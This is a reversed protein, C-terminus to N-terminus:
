MPDLGLDPKPASHKPVEVAQTMRRIAFQSVASTEALQQNLRFTQERGDRCLLVKHGTKAQLRPLIISEPQKMARLAPLIIARLFDSHQGTKNLIRIACAMASPSLLEIGLQVRGTSQQQRLWRLLGITWHTSGPTQLSVVEGMVLSTPVRDAWLLRYGRPSMDMAQARYEMVQSAPGTQEQDTINDAPAPIDPLRNGGADFSEQWVDRQSRTQRTDQAQFLAELGTKAQDDRYPRLFAEFTLGNCLQSHVSSLGPVLKIPQEVPQRRFQRQRTRDWSTALHQRLYNSIGSVAPLASAEAQSLRQTLEQTHLGLFGKGAATKGAQFSPGRDSMLNILYTGSDAAPGLRTLPSWAICAAYLPPLEFRQLQCPQAMDFLLAAKYAQSLSSHRGLWSLKQQDTGSKHARRFLKHLEAWYGSPAPVYMAFCRQLNPLLSWLCHHLAQAMLENRNFNLVSENLAEAVMRYGTALEANLGQALAVVRNEQESPALPQQLHHRFVADASSHVSDALTDLLELRDGPTAKLQNIECLAAHLRRATELHNVKPLSAEWEALARARTAM